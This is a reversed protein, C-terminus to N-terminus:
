LLTEPGGKEGLRRKCEELIDVRRLMLESRLLSPTKLVLTKSAVSYSVQHPLLTIGTVTTIAVICEKEVSAQPPKLLSKYKLLLNGLQHKSENPDKKKM